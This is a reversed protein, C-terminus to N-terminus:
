SRRSSEHVYRQIIVGAILGLLILIPLGMVMFLDRAETPSMENFWILILEGAILFGLLTALWLGVQMVSARLKEVDSIESM